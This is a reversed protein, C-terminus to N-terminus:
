AEEDELLRVLRERTPRVDETVAQWVAGRDVRPYAHILLNRMDNMLRWAVEPCRAQIEPPVHRAAEGMIELNRVVADVAMRNGAFTEFDLGRTYEEVKEACDIIDQVRLRWHRHLSM